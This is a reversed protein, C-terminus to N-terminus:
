QKSERKITPKRHASLALNLGDNWEVSDAFAKFALSINTKLMTGKSSLKSISVVVEKQEKGELTVANVWDLKIIDNPGLTTKSPPKLIVQDLKPDLYLRRRKPAHVARYTALVYVGAFLMQKVQELSTPKPKGGWPSRPAPAPSTRAQEKTEPTTPTAPTPSAVTSPAPAKQEKDKSEVRAQSSGPKSPPPRSPPPASSAAVTAVKPRAQAQRAPAKSAQSQTAAKSAPEKEPKSSLKKVQSVLEATKLSPVAATIQSVFKPLAQCSSQLKQVAPSTHQTISVLSKVLPLLLSENPASQQLAAQALKLLEPLVGVASDEALVEVVPAIQLVVCLWEVAALLVKPSEAAAACCSAWLPLLSRAMEVPAKNDTQGTAGLATVLTSFCRWAALQAAPQDLNTALYAALAKLLAAHAKAPLAPSLETAKAFAHVAFASIAQLAATAVPQNTAFRTMVQGLFEWAGDLLVKRLPLTKVGVRELSRLLKVATLVVEDKDWNDTVASILIAVGSKPKGSVIQTAGQSTESLSLLARCLKPLLPVELAPLPQQLTKLLVPIAGASVAAEQQESSLDSAILCLTYLGDVIKDNSLVGLQGSSVYSILGAVLGAQVLADNNKNEQVCAQFLYLFAAPADSELRAKKEADAPGDGLFDLFFQAAATTGGQVAVAEYNDKAVHGFLRMAPALVAPEKAYSASNEKLFGVLAEVGKEAVVLNVNASQSEALQELAHCASSVIKKEAPFSKLLALIVPVIGAAGLSVKHKAALETMVMGMNEVVPMEAFPDNAVSDFAAVVEWLRNPTMAHASTDEELLPGTSPIALFKHLLRFSADVADTDESRAARLLVGLLLKTRPELQSVVWPYFRTRALVAIASMAVRDDHETLMTGFRAMMLCLADLCEPGELVSETLPSELRALALFALAINTWIEEQDQKDGDAAGGAESNKSPSADYIQTNADESEKSLASLDKGECLLEALRKLGGDRTFAICLEDEVFYNRLGSAQQLKETADVFGDSLKAVANRVTNLLFDKDASSQAGEQDQNQRAKKALEELDDDVDEDEREKKEEEKSAAGEEVKPTRSVTGDLRAPTIGKSRRRSSGFTSNKSASIRSIPSAKMKSQPSKMPTPQASSPPSHLPMPSSGMMAMSPTMRAMSHRSAPTMIVDHAMHHGSAPTNVISRHAAPSPIDLRSEAEADSEDEDSSNRVTPKTAETAPQFAEAKAWLDESSPPENVQSKSPVPPPIQSAESQSPETQQEPQVILIQPQQKQEVQEDYRKQEQDLRHQYLEANAGDQKPLEQIRFLVARTSNQINVNGRFQTRAFRLARSAKREPALLMHLRSPVSSLSLLLTMALDTLAEDKRHSRLTELLPQLIGMDLLSVAREETSLLSALLTMCKMALNKEKKYRQLNQMYSQLASKSTFLERQPHPPDNLSLIVLVFDLMGEVQSAKLKQSPINSPVLASSVGEILSLNLLKQVRDQVAFSHILPVLASALAAYVRICPFLRQLRAVQEAIGKLVLQEQRGEQAARQFIGIIACGVKEAFGGAFGKAKAIDCAIVMPVLSGMAIVEAMAPHFALLQLSESAADMVPVDPVDSSEASSRFLQTLIKICARQMINVLPGPTRLESLCMNLTSQLLAVGGLRKMHAIAQHESRKLEPYEKTLDDLLNLNAATLKDSLLEYGPDMRFTNHKDREQELIKSRQKKRELLLAQVQEHEDSAHKCLTTFNAKNKWFKGELNLERQIAKKVAPDEELAKTLAENIADIWGVSEDESAARLEMKHNLVGNSSNGLLIDFYGQHGRRNLATTAAHQPLAVGQAYKISFISIAGMGPGAEIRRDREAQRQIIRYAEEESRFWQICHRYLVFYKPQWRKYGSTARKMLIGQYLIASPMKSEDQLFSVQPKNFNLKRSPAYFGEEMAKSEADKDEEQEPKMPTLYWNPKEPPPASRGSPSLMGAQNRPPPSRPQVSSPSARVPLNAPKPPPLKSSSGPPFLGRKSDSVPSSLASLSAAVHPSPAASSPQSGGIPPPLRKVGAKAKPESSAPASDLKNPTAAPPPQFSLASLGSKPSKLREKVEARVLAAHYLHLDLHEQLERQETAEESSLFPAVKQLMKSLEEESLGAAGHGHAQLKEQVNTKVEEFSALEKKEEALAEAALAVQRCPGLALLEEEQGATQRKGLLQILVSTVRQTIERQLHRAEELVRWLAEVDKASEFDPAKASHTRSLLPVLSKLEQLTEGAKCFDRLFLPEGDMEKKLLITPIPEVLCLKGDDEANEEGQEPLRSQLEDLSYEAVPPPPPAKYGATSVGQQIRGVRRRMNLAKALNTQFSFITMRRVKMQQDAMDQGFEQLFRGYKELRAVESDTSELLDKAKVLTASLVRLLAVMEDEVAQHAASAAQSEELPSRTDDAHIALFTEVKSVVSGIERQLAYHKLLLQAKECWSELLMSQMLHNDQFGTSNNYAVAQEIESELAREVVQSEQPSAPMEQLEIVNLMARLLRECLQQPEYLSRLLDVPPVPAVRERVIVLRDMQKSLSLSERYCATGIALRELGAKILPKHRDLLTAQASMDDDDMLTTSKPSKVPPSFPGHGNGWLYTEDVGDKQERIMTALLQESTELLERQSELYFLVHRSTEMLCTLAHPSRAPAPSARSVDSPVPPPVLTPESHDSRMPSEIDPPPPPPVMTGDDAEIRQEPSGSPPPPPPPPPPAMFQSVHPGAIAEAEQEVEAISTSLEKIMSDLDAELKDLPKSQPSSPQGGAMIRTHELLIVLSSQLHKHSSPLTVLATALSTLLSKVRAYGTLSHLATNTELRKLQLKVYSLDAMRGLVPGLLSKGDDFSAAADTKARPTPTPRPPPLRSKSTPTPAVSVDSVFNPQNDEDQKSKAEPTNALSRSKEVQLEQLRKLGKQYRNAIQELGKVCPFPLAKAALAAAIASARAVTDLVGLYLSPSPLPDVFDKPLPPKPLVPPEDPVNCLLKAMATIQELTRVIQNRLENAEKEFPLAKLTVDKFFPEASSSLRTQLSSLQMLIQAAASITGAKLIEKAKKAEKTKKKQQKRAMGKAAIIERIGEMIPGLKGHVEAHTSLFAQHAVLHDRWDKLQSTVPGLSPTASAVEKLIKEVKALEAIQLAAEAQAILEHRYGLTLMLDSPDVYKYNYPEASPTKDDTLGQERPNHGSFCGECVFGKSKKVTGADMQLLVTVTKLHPTCPYCFSYECNKCRRGPVDTDGLKKTCARCNSATDVPKGRHCEDCFFGKSKKVIDGTVVVGVEGINTAHQQCVLSLCRKCRRTQHTHDFYTSCVRCKRGFHDRAQPGNFLLSETEQLVALSKAAPIVASIHELLAVEALAVQAEAVNQTMMFHKEAEGLLQKLSAPVIPRRILEKDLASSIAKYRNFLQAAHVMDTMPPLGLAHVRQIQKGLSSFLEATREESKSVKVLTDYVGALAFLVLKGRRLLPATAVVNAAECLTLAMRIGRIREQVSCAKMDEGLAKKLATMAKDQESTAPTFARVFDHPQLMSPATYGRVYEPTVQKNKDPVHAPPVTGNSAAAVLQQHVSQANEKDSRMPTTYIATPSEPPALPTPPASSRPLRMHSIPVGGQKGTSNVAEFWGAHKSSQIMFIEGKTFGLHVPLTGQWSCIAQAQFPFPPWQVPTAKKKKKRSTSKATHPASGIVSRPGAPDPPSVVQPGVPDPAPSVVQGPNAPHNYQALHQPNDFPCRRGRRLLPCTEKRAGPRAPTLIPTAVSM